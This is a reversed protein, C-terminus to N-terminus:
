VRLMRFADANVCDSGVRWFAAWGVEGSPRNNAGMVLPNYVIEMGIRDVITFGQRFDGLILIDDTSATASSLPAATMSSSTYTPRGLLQSPIGPGLDTWFATSNAGSGFNRVLNYISWHALWSCNDQYRAPLSNSLLYLDISGFSANTQAAVRSATTAQLRSLVGWPQTSGTGTVFGAAEIRDKADAFLMGIQTAINSDQTVEFSAQVYADAKIPTISPQAFTPSADAFQSAEGTWEATVGASSVGHWVNTTITEVNAIQRLPNMSGTNTLIISPDLHFPILYGGNASTTSLAARMKEGTRMYRFFAERYEPSGYKLCHAAVEGSEDGDVQRAAAERHSAIMYEPAQEIADHARSRLESISSENMRGNVMLGPRFDSMDFPDRKTRVIVTPSEVPLPAEIHGPKAAFARLEDLKQRRDDDEARRIEDSLEGAEVVAEDMRASEDATPEHIAQLAEIEDALVAAKQRLETLTSV